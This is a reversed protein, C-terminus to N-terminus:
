KGSFKRYVTYLPRLLKDQRVKKEHNKCCIDAFQSFDDYRVSYLNNIKDFRDLSCIKYKERSIGQGIYYESLPREEFKGNKNGSLMKIYKKGKESIALIESVGNKSDKFWPGWYDGIRIDAMSAIRFPCEKCSSYDFIGTKYIRMYPDHYEDKSYLCGGEEDYVSFVLTRWGNKKDRFKITSFKTDKILKSLSKINRQWILNTPVGHCILDVFLWDSSSKGLLNRLAAVQCPTGFFVGGGDKIAYIDSFAKWTNSHIYKSGKFSTLMQTDGPKSCTHVAINKKYDYVCGWVDIGNDSVYESLTAAFGGSSSAKRTKEDAIFSYNDVSSDLPLYKKGSFPCVKSCKGCDICLSQNISAKEFGFRDTTKEIADVPCGASCAGCSVCTSTIARESSKSALASSLANELYELSKAKFKYLNDLVSEEYNDFDIKKLDDRNTIKRDSLGIIKLFSDIRSNQCKPDSYSFRNFVAFPKRANISFLMGHFSDTCVFNARDILGVFDRPGVARSVSEKSVFDKKFIPIVLLDLNYTDAIEHVIKWNKKNTGLFYCLCYPKDPVLDFSAVERWESWSLLMTPDVVTKCDKGTLSSVLKAGDLERVSLYDFKSLLKQYWKRMRIDPIDGRGISPAYAIKKSSEFVFDLFYSPDFCLPSWIQDSGCIFADYSDNLGCLEHSYVVEETEKVFSERFEEYKKEREFLFSHNKPQIVQEKLLEFANKFLSSITHPTPEQKNKQPDYKIFDLDYGMDRIIKAIAYAQLVSGYNSYTYWTMLAFRGSLGQSTCSSCDEKNDM